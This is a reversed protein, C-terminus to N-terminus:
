EQTQIILKVSSITGQIEQVHIGVLNEKKLHKPDVPIEIPEFPEPIGKLAEKLSVAYPKGNFRIAM